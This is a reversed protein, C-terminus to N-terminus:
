PVVGESAQVGLLRTDHLHGSHLAAIIQGEDSLGGPFQPLPADAGDASSTSVRDPAEMSPLCTSPTMNQSCACSTCGLM